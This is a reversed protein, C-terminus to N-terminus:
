VATARLPSIPETASATGPGSSPGHVHIARRFPRLRIHRTIRDRLRHEPQLSQRCRLHENVNPKLQAYKDSDDNDNVNVGTCPIPKSTTAASGSCPAATRAPIPVTGGTISSGMVNEDDLLGNRCQLHHRRRSDDAIRSYTRDGIMSRLEYDNGATIGEQPNLTYVKRRSKLEDTPDMRTPLQRHLLRETSSERGNLWM